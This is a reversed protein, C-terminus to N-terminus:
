KKKLYYQHWENECCVNIIMVCFASWNNKNKCTADLFRLVTKLAGVGGPAIKVGLLLLCPVSEDPDKELGVDEVDVPDEM